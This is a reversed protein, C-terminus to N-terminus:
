EDSGILRYDYKPGFELTRGVTCYRRVSRLAKEDLAARDAADLETLDVRQTIQFQEYREEAENKLSEITILSEFEETGLAKSLRTDASMANCAALAIKLLEGPTFDNDEGPGIRVEAGNGSRAVYTLRGTREITFPASVLYGEPVEGFPHTPNEDDTDFAPVVYNM